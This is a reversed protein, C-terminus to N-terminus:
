YLKGKKDIELFMAEERVWKAGHSQLWKVGGSEDLSSLPNCRKPLVDKLVNFAEIQLSKEPHSAVRIVDHITQPHPCQLFLNLGERIVKVDEDRLAERIISVYANQIGSEDYDELTHSAAVQLLFLRAERDTYIKFLRSVEIIVLGSGYLSGLIYVGDALEKAAALPIPTYIPDVAVRTVPDTYAKPTPPKLVRQRYLYYLLLPEISRHDGVYKLMWAIIDGTVADPAKLLEEELYRVARTGLNAVSEIWEENIEKLKLFLTITERIPEDRQELFRHVLNSTACSFCMFVSVSLLSLAKM